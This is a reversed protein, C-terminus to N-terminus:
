TASAFAFFSEIGMLTVSREMGDKTTYNITKKMRPISNVFKKFEDLQKSTMLDYFSLLEENSIDAKAFVNGSTQLELFCNKFISRIEDGEPDEDQLLYEFTPEQLLLLMDDSLKIKNSRHKPKDLDFNELNLTMDIAEKTEPCIMTFSAEEGISKGRLYLFAKEVDAIPMKEPNPIDEFCNELIQAIAKAMEMGSNSKQALLLIKEEKVTMPRFKHKKGSIPLQVEYSPFSKKLLETIMKM